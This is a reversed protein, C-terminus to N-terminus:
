ENIIYPTIDRNYLNKWNEFVDFKIQISQKKEIVNDEENKVYVDLNILYPEGIRTMLLKKDINSNGTIERISNWSHLTQKTQYPILYEFLYQNENVKVLEYKEKSYFDYYEDLTAWRTKKNNKIINDWEFIKTNNDLTKISNDGLIQMEIKEVEQKTKIEIGLNQGASIFGESNVLKTSNTKNLSNFVKNNNEMKVISLRIDEIYDNNISSTDKENDLNNKNDDNQSSEEEEIYTEDIDPYLYEPLEYEKENLMVYSNRVSPLIYLYDSLILPHISLPVNIEHKAYLPIDTSFDTFVKVRAKINVNVTTAQTFREHFYRGEYDTRYVKVKCTGSSHLNDTINIQNTLIDKVYIELVIKKIHEKKAYEGLNGIGISYKIPLYIYDQVPSIYENRGNYTLQTVARANPALPDIYLLEENINKDEDITNVKIVGQNQWTPFSEVEFNGIGIKNPTINYKVGNYILNQNLLYEKVDEFKYKTNDFYTDENIKLYEWKLPSIITEKENDKKYYNNVVVEGIVNYGLLKYEGNEGNKIWKGNELSTWEQNNNSLLEEPSGYVIKKYKYYIEENIEYGLNNYKKVQMTNIIKNFENSIAYTYSNIMILFVFAIISKIYKHKM